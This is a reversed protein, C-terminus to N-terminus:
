AQLNSKVEDVFKTAADTTTARGFLVDTGYRLLVAALTGGGPPPAIPTTALEPVIDTIFKSVQQQAKELKPTIATLVETNAPIGREALNIDGSETSNVWWNVLAVAAEPNKTRASVSWLMSAKYWAKRETAKGALSPFRLIKMEQGSAANVAEVQNSWFMSMATKGTTFDGQDLTKTSDETIQSATPIAKANEWKVMMEFWAAADAAEFALGQENFLEKGNQRLYASFMSDVGFLSSFGFGGGGMKGTLEAALAMAEDWTWTSDDPLDIGAKKFLAPNALITPTNIGANIGYTADGIKGSDATGEVFKSTDAGNAALDLLAGRKGYESIYAMDMQIIDPATNGATQTALKDWYSAWEGPQAAITVDPTAKTYAAIADATNKNRVENGWWTFQLDKKGGASSGSDSGGCATMGVSSAAAALGAGILFQRRSTAM